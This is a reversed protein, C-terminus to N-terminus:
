APQALRGANNQPRRRHSSKSGYEGEMKIKDERKLPAAIIVRTGMRPKSEIDLKGGIYSLRERVSFLGFGRSRKMNDTLISTDFGKGDDEVTIRLYGGYQKMIVNVHEANAHKIINNFIEFVARYILIRVDDDLPQLQKGSEYSFMIGHEKQIDETLQEIAADLGFLYLLPSSISFSLSRTEEIMQSILTRLENLQKTVPPASSSELLAGLRINCIALSQSVRDHLETAILRREREETLSLEAAMSRLEHQYNLLREEAEKRESIDRIFAVNVREGRYTTFASTVEIPVETGDKKIICMEYLGPIIEGSMKRNHRKLSAERYKPHLLNLFSMSTLEEKTYGTMRPWEDSVFAQISSEGNRDQLMVIAEGVRGGLNILADNREEAEKLAEEAQKRETIDMFNGLTARKGNFIISAVSEIAWMTKGNRNTMRLEYPSVRKGKLMDIAAQRAAARDEPHVLKFPVPNGSLLEQESYGTLKQFQSNTFKFKGDQFIYIGVTSNNALTQYLEESKKYETEAKELSAVQDCVDLLEDTLERKTKRMNSMKRMRERLAPNLGLINTPKPETL